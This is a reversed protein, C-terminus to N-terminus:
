YASAEEAKENTLKVVEGAKPNREDKGGEFHSAKSTRENTADNLQTDASGKSRTAVKGKKEKRGLKHCRTCAEQTQHNKMKYQM